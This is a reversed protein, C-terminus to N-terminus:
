GIFSDLTEARQISLGPAKNRDGRHVIATSPESGHDNPIATELLEDGHQEYRKHGDAGLRPRAVDIPRRGLGAIMGVDVNGREVAGIRMDVRGLGRVAVVARM